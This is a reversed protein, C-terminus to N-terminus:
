QKQERGNNNKPIYFIQEPKKKPKKRVKKIDEEEIDIVEEPAPNSNTDMMKNIVDHLAKLADM